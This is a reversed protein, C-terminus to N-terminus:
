ITGFTEDGTAICTVLYEAPQGDLRRRLEEVAGEPSAYRGAYEAYQWRTRRSTRYHISYPRNDQIVIM